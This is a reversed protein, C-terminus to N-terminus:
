ILKIPEKFAGLAWMGTPTLSVGGVDNCLHPAVNQLGVEWAQSCFLRRANANTKAFFRKVVGLWAYGIGIMSLTQEGIKNRYPEWEDKLPYWYIHGRYNKIYNSLIDPYFGISMAEITFRRNEVGEYIGARVIGGWHSLPIPGDGKTAYMIIKSVIEVNQFGLGDGTKMLDRYKLYTSLDNMNQGEKGTARPLDGAIHLHM